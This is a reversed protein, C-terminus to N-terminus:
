TPTLGWPEAATHQPQNTHGDIACQFVGDEICGYIAENNNQIPGELAHQKQWKKREMIFVVTVNKLPGLYNSLKQLDRLESFFPDGTDCIRYEKYFMLEGKLFVKILCRKIFNM